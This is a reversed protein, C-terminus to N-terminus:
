KLKEGLKEPAFFGEPLKADLSLDVLEVRTESGDKADTMVAATARAFGNERKVATPVATMVKRPARGGDFGAEFCERRLVVCWEKDLATLIREYASGEDPAPTVQIVFAPRGEVATDDLRRIQGPYLIRAFRAFDEFTLDTGFLEGEHSHAHRAVPEAPTAIWADGIEDGESFLYAAPRGAAGGKSAVIVKRGSDAPQSSWYEGEIKREEGKGSKWTMVFGGHASPPLSKQWCDIIEELSGAASSPRVPLLSLAVAAICAVWASVRTELM